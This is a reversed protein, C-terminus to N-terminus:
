GGRCRSSRANRAGGVSADSSRPAPRLPNDGPTQDRGNRRERNGHGVPGVTDRAQGNEVDPLAIRDKQLPLTTTTEEDVATRVGSAKEDREVLAQRRPIPADVDDDQGVRVLVVRGTQGGHEVPVPHLTQELGSHDSRTGSVGRELAGKCGPADGAPGEGGAVPQGDIVDAEPDEPRVRARHGLLRGIVSSPDVVDRDDEEAVDSALSEQEGAVDLLLDVRSEDRPAKRPDIRQLHRVM